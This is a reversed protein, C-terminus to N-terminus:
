YAVQELAVLDQQLAQAPGAREVLLRQESEADGARQQTRAPLGHSRRLAAGYLEILVEIELDRDAGDAVVVVAERHAQGLDVLRHLDDLLREIPQGLPRVDSLVALDRQRRAM